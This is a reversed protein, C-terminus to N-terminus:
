KWAVALHRANKTAAIVWRGTYYLGFCGIAIFVQTRGSPSDDNEDDIM